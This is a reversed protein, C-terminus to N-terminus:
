VREEILNFTKFGLFDANTMRYVLCLLVDLLKLRPTVEVPFLHLFKLFLRAHLHIEVSASGLRELCFPSLFVEGCGDVLVAFACVEQGEGILLWVDLSLTELQWVAREVLIFLFCFFGLSGELLIVVRSALDSTLVSIREFCTQLLSLALYLQALHLKRVFADCVAGDSEHHSPRELFLGFCEAFPEVFLMYVILQLVRGVLVVHGHLYGVVAVGAEELGDQTHVREGVIVVDVRAEEKRREEHEEESETQAIAAVAEDHQKAANIEGQLAVVLGLFVSTEANPQAQCREDATQECAGEEADVQRM